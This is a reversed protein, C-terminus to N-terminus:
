DWPASVHSLKDERTEGDARDGDKRGLLAGSEHPRRHMSDSPPDPPLDRVVNKAMAM